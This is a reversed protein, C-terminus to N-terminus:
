NDDPTIRTSTLCLHDFWTAYEDRLTEADRLLVTLRAPRSPPRRKSTPPPLPQGQQQAQLRQRYAKQREAVSNYLPKRGM